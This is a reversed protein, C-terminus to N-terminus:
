YEEENLYETIINVLKDEDLYENLIIINLNYIIKFLKYNYIILEICNKINLTKIYYYIDHKINNYIDKSKLENIKINSM